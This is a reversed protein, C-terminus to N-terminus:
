NRSPLRPDEYRASIGGGSIEVLTITEDGVRARGTLRKVPHDLTLLPEWRARDEDNLDLLAFAEDFAEFRVDDETHEIGDRGARYTAVGRALDETVDFVARLLWPPAENLDVPGRGPTTDDSTTGSTASGGAEASVTYPTFWDRWHPFRADVADMGRVVLMDDLSGFPRNLPYEPWGLEEYIASEAGYDRPEPDPDVWDALAEVLARATEPEMGVNELHRRLIERHDESSGLLNVAIRSGESTARAHYSETASVRQKLLPDGPSVAPHGALVLASEALMRARFRKAAEIDRDLGRELFEVLGMVALAMMMTAWIVLLLSSGRESALRRSHPAALQM